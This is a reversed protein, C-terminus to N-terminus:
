FSEDLTINWLSEELHNKWLLEDLHSKRVYEDSLCEEYQGELSNKQHKEVPHEGPHCASAALEPPLPHTLFSAAISDINSSSLPGSCQAPFSPPETTGTSHTTVSEPGGDPGCMRQRLM